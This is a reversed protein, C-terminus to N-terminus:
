EKIRIFTEDVFLVLGEGERKIHSEKIRMESQSIITWELLIERDETKEILEFKDGTYEGIFKRVTWIGNNFEQFEYSNGEKHYMYGKIVLNAGTEHMDLKLLKDSILSPAVHLSDSFLRQIRSPFASEM